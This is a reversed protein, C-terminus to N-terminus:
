SLFKIKDGLKTKVRFKMPLEIVYKAKWPSTYFTFPKLLRVDVVKKNKNAFVAQLPFFVFLMHLSIKQERAFVLVKAKRPFFNFMFGVAVKIGRCEDVSVRKRNIEILM